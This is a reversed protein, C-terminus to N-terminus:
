RRLPFEAQVPRVGDFLCQGHGGGRMGRASENLHFCCLLSQKGPGLLDAIVESTDAVTSGASGAGPVPDRLEAILPAEVLGDPTTREVEGFPGRFPLGFGVFASMTGSKGGDKSNWDFEVATHDSVLSGRGYGTSTCALM